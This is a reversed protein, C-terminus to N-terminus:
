EGKKTYLWVCFPCVYLAHGEEDEARIMVRAAVLRQCDTLGCRVLYQGSKYKMQMAQEYTM